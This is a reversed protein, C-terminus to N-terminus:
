YRRSRWYGKTDTFTFARERPSLAPENLALEVFRYNKPLDRYLKGLDGVAATAGISVDARPVNGTRTLDDAARTCPDTAARASQKVALRATSFFARLPADAIPNFLQAFAQIQDCALVCSRLGSTAIGAM